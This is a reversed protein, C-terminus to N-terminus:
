QYRSEISQGDGLIDPNKIKINGIKRAGLDRHVREREAPDDPNVGNKELQWDYNRKKADRSSRSQMIIDYAAGTGLTIGFLVDAVPDEPGGGIIEETAGIRLALSLGSLGFPDVFYLPNNVCYAYLNSGGAYSIPDRNLFRGTAPDYYRHGM